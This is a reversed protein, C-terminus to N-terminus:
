LNRTQLRLKKAEQILANREANSLEDSGDLRRAGDFRKDWYSSALDDVRVTSGKAPSHIFKNDGVYIGVHSFTLRMTIPKGVKSMQSSKPPLLFGLKDRFVFRVFGSADLGSQPLDGNWRYRVGILQMADNILSETKSSVSDVVQYTFRAFYSSTSELISEVKTGEKNGAEGAPNAHALSFAFGLVLVAIPKFSLSIANKKLSM